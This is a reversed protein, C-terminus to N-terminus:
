DPVAHLPTSDLRYALIIQNRLEAVIEEREDDNLSDFRKCPALAIHEPDHGGIHDIRTDNIVCLSRMDDIRIDRLRSARVALLNEPIAGNMKAPIREALLPLEEIDMLRFSSLSGAKLERMHVFAPKLVAKKKFEKPRVTRCVWEDNTVTPSSYTQQGSVELPCPEPCSIM